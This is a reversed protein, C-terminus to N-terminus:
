EMRININDFFHEADGSEKFYKRIAEVIGRMATETIGNGNINLNLEGGQQNRINVIDPKTLEHQIKLRGDTAAKSITGTLRQNSRDQRAQQHAIKSQGSQSANMSLALSERGQGTFVTYDIKDKGGLLKAAVESRMKLFDPTMKDLQFSMLPPGNPDLPNQMMQKLLQMGTMGGYTGQTHEGWLGGFYSANYIKLNPNQQILSQRGSPDRLSDYDHASMGFTEAGMRTSIQGYQEYQNKPIYQRALQLIADEYSMGKSELGLIRQKIQRLEEDTVQINGILINHIEKKAQDIAELWNEGNPALGLAANKLLEDYIREPANAEIKYGMHQAYEKGTMNFEAWSSMRAGLEAEIKAREMSTLDRIEGNLLKQRQEDFLKKYFLSQQYAYGNTTKYLNQQNKYFAEAGSEDTWFEVPKGKEYGQVKINETQTKQKKRKINIQRLDKSRRIYTDINNERFLQNFPQVERSFQINKNNNTAEYILAYAQEQSIGQQLFPKLQEYTIQNGQLDKGSRIYKTIQQVEKPSVEQTINIGFHDLVQKDSMDQMKNKRIRQEALITAEEDTLKRTEGLFFQLPNEKLRYTNNLFPIPLNNIDATQPLIAKKSEESFDFIVKDKNLSNLLLNKILVKPLEENTIEKTTLIDKVPLDKLVSQKSLLRDYMKKDQKSLSEYEQPSIYKNEEVPIRVTRKLEQKLMAHQLGTKERVKRDNYLTDDTGYTYEIDILRHVFDKFPDHPVVAQQQDANITTSAGAVITDSSDKELSGKKSSGKELSDKKLSDDQKQSPATTEDKHITNSSQKTSAKKIYKEKIAKDSEQNSSFISAYIKNLDNQAEQTNTSPFGGILNFAYRYNANGMPNNPDIPMFPTSTTSVIASSNGESGNQSIFNTVPKTPAIKPIFIAHGTDVGQGGTALPDWTDAINMAYSTGRAPDFIEIMGNPLMRGAVVAHNFNPNIKHGHAGNIHADDTQYLMVPNNPNQRFHNTLINAWEQQSSVDIGNTGLKENVLSSWNGTGVYGPDIGTYAQILARASTGTCNGEDQQLMNLTNGPGGVNTPIIQQQQQISNNQIALLAEQGYKYRESMNTKNSKEYMKEFTDISNTIDNVKFTDPTINYKKNMEWIMAKAQWSLDDAKGGKFEIWKKIELWRSKDWQALGYRGKNEANPNFHSEQHLNGLIGASQMDSFGAQKLENFVIARGSSAPDINTSIIGSSGNINGVISSYILAGSRTLTHKIDQLIQHTVGTMQFLNDHEQSISQQLMGMLKEHLDMFDVLTINIIKNLRQTEKQEDVIHKTAQETHTKRSKDAETKSEFQSEYNLGTIQEFKKKSENYAEGLNQNSLFAAKNDEQKIQQISQKNKEYEKELQILAEQKQEQTLPSDSIQQKMYNYDNDVREEHDILLEDILEKKQDEDINSKAIREAEYLPDQYSQVGAAAAEKYQNATTQDLNYKEAIKDFDTTNTSELDKQLKQTAEDTNFQAMMSEMDKNIKEYLIQDRAQEPSIEQKAIKELYEPHNALEPYKELLGQKTLAFKEEDSAIIGLSKAATTSIREGTVLASGVDLIGAAFSLLATQPITAAVAFGLDVLHDRLATTAADELSMGQDYYKYIDAVTMGGELALGIVPLKKLLPMIKPMFNVIGAPMFKSIKNTLNKLKGIASVEGAAPFDGTTIKFFRAFTKLNNFIKEFINAVATSRQGFLKLFNTSITSVISKFGSLISKGVELITGKTTQFITKLLTNTDASIESILKRSASFANRTLRRILSNAKQIDKGISVKTNNIQKQIDQINKLHKERIKEAQKLRENLHEGSLKGTPAKQQLKEIIDNIRNLKKTQTKYQDDLTTLKQQAKYIKTADAETMEIGTIRSLERQYFNMNKDLIDKAKTVELEKISRQNVLNEIEQTTSQITGTAKLKKADELTVKRTAIQSEIATLEQQRNILDQGAKLALNRRVNFQFDGTLVTEAKKLASLNTRVPLWSHLRNQQIINAAQAHRERYIALQENIQEIRAKNQKLLPFENETLGTSKVRKAYEEYLNKQKLLKAAEDELKIQYRTLGWNDLTKKTFATKISTPIEKLYIKINTFKDKIINPIATVVSWINKFLEKIDKLPAIFMGFINKIIRLIHINPDNVLKYGTATVATLATTVGAATLLQQLNDQRNEEPKVSVVAPSYIQYPPYWFHKAREIPTQEIKENDRIWTDGAVATSSSSTSSNSSIEAAEAKTFILDSLVNFITRNNETNVTSSSSSPFLKDMLINTGGVALGGLFGRWGAGRLRSTRSLKNILAQVTVFTGVNNVTNLLIQQDTGTLKDVKNNDVKENGGLLSYTLYGLTAAIAGRVGGRLFKSGTSISTQANQPSIFSLSNFNGLMKFTAPMSVTAALAAMPHDKDNWIRNTDTLWKMTQGSFTNEDFVINGFKDKVLNGQKDRQAFSNRITDFIRDFLSTGLAFGLVKGPLTPIMSATALGAAVAPTSTSSDWPMHSEENLENQAKEKDVGNIMNQIQGFAEDVKKDLGSLFKPIDRITSVITDTINQFLDSTVLNQILKLAEITFKLIQKQFEIIIPALEQLISDMRSGIAQASRWINSDLEAQLTDSRALQRVMVDLQDSAKQTLKEMTANPNDAKEMEQGLLQQFMNSNGEELYVSAMRSAARQGLGMQKLLDTVGIRRMNPDNGYATMITNLYTDMKTGIEGAWGERIKGDAEHSYAAQALAHWPNEGQLVAAFAVQNKNDAFKTAASGVQTTIEEAVEARVGSQILKNLILSAQEGDIGIQMFTQAISSVKNLYQGLPVNATQAQMALKALADTAEEPSKDMDKFYTKVISNITSDDIGYLNKFLATQRTIQEIEQVTQEPSTGYRGGINRLMSQYQKDVAERDIRGGSQRYLEDGYMLRSQAREASDTLDNYGIYADTGMATYRLQGQKRYYEYGKTATGVFGPILAGLNGFSNFLQKISSAISQIENHATRAFESIKKMASETKQSAKKQANNLATLDKTDSKLSELQQRTTSDVEINFAQKLQLLALNGQKAQDQMQKIKSAMKGEPDLKKQEEESLRNWEEATRLARASIDAQMNVVTAFQQRAQNLIIESEKHLGKNKKITAQEFLKTLAESSNSLEFQTQGIISADKKFRNMNPRGIGLGFISFRDKTQEIGTAIQWIDSAVQGTQNFASVFKNGLGRGQAMQTTVENESKEISHIIHDIRQAFAATFNAHATSTLDDVSQEMADLEAEIQTRTAESINLKQLEARLNSISWEGNAGIGLMNNYFKAVDGLSVQAINQSVSAAHNTIKEFEEKIHQTSDTAAQISGPTQLKQNTFVDYLSQIAEEASLSSKNIKEFIEAINSLDSTAHYDFLSLLSKRFDQIYEKSTELQENLSKTNLSIDEPEAEERTKADIMGQLYNQSAQFSTVLQKLNDKTDDQHTQAFKQESEVAKIFTDIVSKLKELDQKNDSLDKDFFDNNALEELANFAEDAANNINIDNSYNKDNSTKILQIIEPLVEKINKALKQTFLNDDLVDSAISNLINSLNNQSNTFDTTDRDTKAQRAAIIAQAIPSSIAGTAAM